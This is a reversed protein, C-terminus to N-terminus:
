QTTLPYNICGPRAQGLSAGPILIQHCLCRHGCRVFICWILCMTQGKAEDETTSHLTATVHYIIFQLDTEGGGGGASRAKRGGSNHSLCFLLLSCTPLMGGGPPWGQGEGRWWDWTSWRSGGCPSIALYCPAPRSTQSSPFWCGRRDRRRRPHPRMGFQASINRHQLSM